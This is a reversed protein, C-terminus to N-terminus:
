SITTTELLTTTPKRYQPNEFSGPFFGVISGIKQLLVTTHVEFLCIENM